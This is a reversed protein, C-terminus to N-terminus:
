VFELVWFIFYFTSKDHLYIIIGIMVEPSMYVYMKSNWINLHIMSCQGEDIIKMTRLTIIWLFIFCKEQWTHPPVIKLFKIQMYLIPFAIRLLHHFNFPINCKGYWRDVHWNNRFFRKFLTRQVFNIRNKRQCYVLM